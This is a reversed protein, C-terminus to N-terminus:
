HHYRVFLIIGFVITTILIESVHYDLIRQYAESTYFLNSKEKASMEISAM